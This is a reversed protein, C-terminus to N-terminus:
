RRPERERGLARVEAADLSAGQARGWALWGSEDIMGERRAPRVIGALAGLGRSARRVFREPLRVGHVEVYHALGEPWVWAGDFRDRWGMERGRAGCAFRCFSTGRYVEFIPAARLYAVVKARRADSWRGVLAQPIPRTSPADVNFWYGVAELRARMSAPM